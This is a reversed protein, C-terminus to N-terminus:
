RHPRHGVAFVRRFPFPTGYGHAPYAARLREALEALFEQQRGTATQEDPAHQSLATLVPRLATGKVWELVPDTGPLLQVYSTEWADPTLGAGAFLDAYEAATLVPDAPLALGGTAQQWRQAGVLERIIVHSPADYNGPVQVALWGGAPLATAISRLLPPHEPVWQYAANSIVVDTDAPPLYGTLDAEAFTVRAGAHRAAHALMAPSNDVGLVDAEPWRKALTATLEGSGCGLDVVRAPAEAAVRNLLEFFPRSRHDAYRGYQAPDWAPAARGPPGATDAGARGGPATSGPAPLQGAM